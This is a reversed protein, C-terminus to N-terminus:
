DERNNKAEQERRWQRFDLREEPATEGRIQELLETIAQVIQETADKLVRNTLEKGEFDSLDVPPGFHTVMTKRPLINFENKYARMVSQPGWQAAPIVPAGTTLALQAVGIRGSMMWFEEDRTMTGEPYIVVCEGDNVADIADRIANVAQGSDRYVPIQGAHKMVFGVLPISFLKDKALFHPPRGADILSHSISIPDFWSMHNVAIIVGDNPPYTAEVYEMGQRERKTMVQMFPYLSAIAAKFTLGIKKGHKQSPVRRVGM